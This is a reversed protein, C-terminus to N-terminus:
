GVTAEIVLDDKIKLSIRDSRVDATVMCAEGDIELCRLALGLRQCQLEAFKRSMNILRPALRVAMANKIALTDM